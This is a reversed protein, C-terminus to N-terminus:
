LGAVVVIEVLEISAVAVADRIAPLLVRLNPLEDYAPMVVSVRVPGSTAADSESPPM